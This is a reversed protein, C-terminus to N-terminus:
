NNTLGPLGHIVAIRGTTGTLSHILMALDPTAKAGFRGNLKQGLDVSRDIVSYLDDDSAQITAPNQTQIGGRRVRGKM